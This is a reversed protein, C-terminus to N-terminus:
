RLGRPNENPFDIWIGGDHAGKHTIQIPDCYPTKLQQDPNINVWLSVAGGWGNSQYALNQKAPFFIRGRHPIVDTCSLSGGSVGNQKDIQFVSEPFGERFVFQGKRKQDDVRTRFRVEGGGVDAQVKEDFSAYFTM